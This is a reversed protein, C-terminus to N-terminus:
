RFEGAMAIQWYFTSLYFNTRLFGKRWRIQQKVFRKWMEQGKVYTFATVVYAAQWRMLSHATLLRDDSDDYRATSEM